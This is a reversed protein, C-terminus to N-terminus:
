GIARVGVRFSNVRLPRRDEDPEPGGDRRNQGRHGRACAYPALRLTFERLEELPVVHNVMGTRLAEQASV